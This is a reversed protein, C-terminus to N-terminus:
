FFVSLLSFFFFSAILIQFTGVVYSGGVFNSYAAMLIVIVIFGFTITAGIISLVSARDQSRLNKPKVPAPQSKEAGRRANWVILCAAFLVLSVLGISMAPSYEFSEQLDKYIQHWGSVVIALIAVLAVGGRFFGRKFLHEAAVGGSAVFLLEILLRVM